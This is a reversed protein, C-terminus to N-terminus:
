FDDARQGSLDDRMATLGQRPAAPQCHRLVARVKSTDLAPSRPRRTGVSGPLAGEVPVLLEPDRGFIECVLRAFALRQTPEGGCVHYTGTAGQDVLDWTMQALNAAWTPTLTQDTWAPMTKGLALVDLLRVVYNKRQPEWGYVGSTRAILHKGHRRVLEEAEVKQRGYENIPSVPSEETYPGDEGDFVYDTSYFTLHAGTARAAEIVEALGEHNLRRGAAPDQECRDVNAEAAPCLIVDPRLDMAVGRAEGPRTIDLPLMGPRPHGHFTGTVSWGAPAARMLHAGVLGSAGIVLAKRQPGQGTESTEMM